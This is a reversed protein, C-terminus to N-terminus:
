EVVFFNNGNNSIGHGTYRLTRRHIPKAPETVWQDVVDIGGPSQREYIAAHGSYKGNKDFTAIATGASIKTDGKVPGGKKWRRTDVPIEPCVTTVFSVCQGCFDPGDTDDDPPETVFPGKSSTRTCVWQGPDDSTGAKIYSRYNSSVYAMMQGRGRFHANQRSWFFTDVGTLYASRGPTPSRRRL